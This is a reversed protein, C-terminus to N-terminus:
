KTELKKKIQQCYMKLIATEENSFNENKATGFIRGLKDNLFTRVENEIEDYLAGKGKLIRKSLVDNIANAKELKLQEQSKLPVNGTPEQVVTVQTASATKVEAIVKELQEKTPTTQVVQATPQTFDSLQKKDFKYKNAMREFLLNASNFQSRETQNNEEFEQLIELEDETLQAKRAYIFPWVTEGYPSRDFVIDRANCAMYVDILEDLYSPGAYGPEQFKKSPASMHVIQFGRKKYMEAVTTKGTRDLGELIIWAM